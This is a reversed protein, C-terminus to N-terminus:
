KQSRESRGSRAHQRPKAEKEDEEDSLESIDTSPDNKKKRGKKGEAKETAEMFPDIYKIENHRLKDSIMEETFVNTLRLNWNSDVLCNQLCLFGHCRLLSSHLFTIAKCVDKAFSVQFNYTIKLEDNFLVDELSGRQCLVWLVIFENEQGFSIGVFKNLNENEMFKLEKLQTLENKTFTVNRTQRYRKFACKVGNVMAQRASLRNNAKSTTSNSISGGSIMSKGIM